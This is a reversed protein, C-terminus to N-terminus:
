HLGEASSWREMATCDEREAVGMGGGCVPRHFGATRTEGCEWSCIRLEPLSRPEAQSGGGRPASLISERSGLPPAISLSM